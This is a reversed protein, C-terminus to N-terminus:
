AEGRTPAAPAEAGTSGLARWRENPLRVTVSTGKTLESALDLSGGHLEAIAKSLPLGLGTGEFKRSLESDVQLFPTLAKWINEPAIGIGTDSVTIVLWGEDTSVKLTVRGGPLTFKTSNSLLNIFIKKLQLQDGLVEPLPDMFDTELTLEADKARKEIISLALRMANGLEFWEDRLDLRGAEIRAIDLIANVVELLHHGAGNIDRVYEISSTEAQGKESQKIILDSFGIIANLPTRLEHSMNALFESKARNAADAGLMALRASEANREAKIRMELLDMETHRRRMRAGLLAMETHRRRVLIGLQAGYQELLSRRDSKLRPRSRQLTSM